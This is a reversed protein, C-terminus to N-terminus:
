VGILWTKEEWRSPDVREREGELKLFIAVAGDEEEAEVM